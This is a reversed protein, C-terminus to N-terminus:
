GKKVAKALKKLNKEADKGIFQKKIWLMTQKHKVVWGQEIVPEGDLTGTFQYTLGKAKGFSGKKFKLKGGRGISAGDGAGAEWDQARKEIFKEPDPNAQNSVNLRFTRIEFYFYNKGDETRGEGVFKLDRNMSDGAKVHALGKPKHFVYGPGTYKREEDMREGRDGAYDPIMGLLPGRVPEVTNLFKIGRLAKGVHPAMQKYSDTHGWTRAMVMYAQGRLVTCFIMLALRTDAKKGEFKVFASKINGFNVEDKTRTKAAMISDLFKNEEVFNKAGGGKIWNVAKFGPRTNLLWLDLRCFNNDPTDKEFEQKKREVRGMATAFIGAKKSADEAGETWQFPGKPLTWHINHHDMMIARGERKPGKEPWDSDSDGDSDGDAGDTGDAGDSGGGDVEDMPEPADKEGAGKLLRFGARVANIEDTVSVHASHWSIVILQYFSGKHVMVYKRFHGKAGGDAKVRQIVVKGKIGSITTDKIATREVTGMGEAGSRKLEAVRQDLGLGETARKYGWIQVAASSCEARAFFGAKSQDSTITGFSWGDPLTWNVGQAKFEKADGAFAVSLPLLALSLVLVPLLRRM